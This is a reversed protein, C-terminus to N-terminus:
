EGESEPSRRVQEDTERGEREDTERPKRKMRVNGSVNFNAGAQSERLESMRAVIHPQCWRFSSVVKGQAAAAMFGRQIGIAIDNVSVSLAEAWRRILDEETPERAEGPKTRSYLEARTHGHAAMLSLFERRIELFREAPSKGIADTNNM